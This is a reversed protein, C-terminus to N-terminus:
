ASGYDKGIAGGLTMMGIRVWVAYSRTQRKKDAQVSQAADREILAVIRRATSPLLCGHRSHCGSRRFVFDKTVPQCQHWPM